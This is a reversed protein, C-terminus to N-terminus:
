WRRRCPDPPAPTSRASALLRQAIAPASEQWAIEAIFPAFGMQRDISLMPANSDANGTRVFRAASNRRLMAEM